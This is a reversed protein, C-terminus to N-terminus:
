LGSFNSHVRIEGYLIVSGTLSRTVVPHFAVPLSFPDITQRHTGLAREKGGRSGERPFSVERPLRLNQSFSRNISIFRFHVPSPFREPLVISEWDPLHSTPPTPLFNAVIRDRSSVLCHYSLTLSLLSPFTSRNSDTAESPFFPSHTFQPLSISRFLLIWEIPWHCPDDPLTKFFIRYQVILWHTGFISELFRCRAIVRKKKERKPLLQDPEERAPLSIEPIFPNITKSSENSLSLRHNSITSVFFHMIWQRFFSCINKPDYFNTLM